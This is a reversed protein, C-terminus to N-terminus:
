KQIIERVKFSNFLWGSGNKKLTTELDRVERLTKGDRLDGSLVASYLVKATNGSVEIEIDDFSLQLSKFLARGRLVNAAINERSLPDSTWALGQVEITTPDMFLKSVAQATGAASILGEDTKKSALRSFTRFQGRIINEETPRLYYWTGFATGGLLILIVSLVLLHIGKIVM